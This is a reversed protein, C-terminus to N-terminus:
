QFLVAGFYAPLHFNPADSVIKNWSLFHPVPLDDGCKYFNAKAIKGYLKKPDVEEFIALPIKVLLNWRIAKEGNFIKNRCQVLSVKETSLCRRKDQQGYAIYTTGVCNFELNYYHQSDFSIFCEVCSDKYVPDNINRYKAQVHSEEVEFYLLLCDSSYAIRFSVKPQYPYEQWNVQDVYNVPLNVMLEELKKFVPLNAFYAISLTRM